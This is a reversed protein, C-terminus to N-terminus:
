TARALGNGVDRAPLSLRRARRRLERYLAVGRLTSDQQAILAAIGAVHPTAMSTGSWAAYKRPMPLASRIAVGPAAINIEGGNPNLGGNSFRAPQLAQDLAAVAIITEVNAPSGIPMIESPRNSENGAAAIVLSGADLARRGATSYATSPLEGPRTPRGLSMSIVQCGKSVAWGIAALIGGDGGSGSNSLVKGHFIESEYAIGYRPGESPRLPGCATGTCHTGHGHVDHATENRIFSNVTIRRGRFDPHTQDLGTDLIAVKIGRGTFRSDLVGTALLGWTAFNSDQFGTPSASPTQFQHPLGAPGGSLTEYLHKVAEYYGRLYELQQSPPFLPAPQAASGPSGGELLDADLLDGLAFNVYEPEVIMGDDDTMASVMSSTQDPDGDIVMIGLSDIMVGGGTTAASYDFEATKFDAQRSFESIGCVSSLRSMGSRLSSEGTEKFTVIMRGTTTGDGPAASLTGSFASSGTQNGSFARSRGSGRKAM